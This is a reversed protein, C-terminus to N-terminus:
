RTMRISSGSSSVITDFCTSFHYNTFYNHANTPWKVFYYAGQPHCSLTPVHLITIIQSIITHMQQDSYLIFFIRWDKDVSNMGGFMVKHYKWLIVCMYICM